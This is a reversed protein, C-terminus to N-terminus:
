RLRNCEYKELTILCNKVENYREEVPGKEVEIDLAVAITNIMEDDIENKMRAFLELKQEYTDADLFRVLWPSLTLEPAEEETSSITFSEGEQEFRYEQTSDPYKDKDVASLFMTLPRAYIQEPHYLNRYVVLEEETETHKAITIVQYTNGKFHKYIDNEKPRQRM